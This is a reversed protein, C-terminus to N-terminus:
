DGSSGNESPVHRLEIVSDFLTFGETRMLKTANKRFCLPSLSWCYTKGKKRMFNIWPLEATGAIFRVCNCCASKQIV